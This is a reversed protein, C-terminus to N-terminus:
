AFISTSTITVTYAEPGPMCPQIMFTGVKHSKLTESYAELSSNYVGLLTKGKIVLVKGAFKKVLEEQNDIFFRLEAEFTKSM